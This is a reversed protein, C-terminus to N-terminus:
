WKVGCLCFILLLLQLPFWVVVCGLIWNWVSVYLWPMRGGDLGLSPDDRGIHGTVCHECVGLYTTCYVVMLRDADYPILICKIIFQLTFLIYVKLWTNDSMSFRNFAKSVYKFYFTHLSNQVAKFYCIPTHWWCISRADQIYKRSLWNFSRAPRSQVHAAQM